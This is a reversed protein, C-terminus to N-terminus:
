ENKNSRFIELLQKSDLKLNLQKLDKKTTFVLFAEVKDNNIDLWGCLVAESNKNLLSECYNTFYDADFKKSVTFMNEGYWKNRISIEGILINPLTYVFLAPSPNGGEQYSEQFKRDTLASSNNNAFLLAIDDDKYNALALFDKKLIESGLFATKTLRDMKYFKPYEIELSKYLEKTFSDISDSNFAQENEGNLTFKNFSIHCYSTIYSM